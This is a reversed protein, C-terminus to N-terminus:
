DAAAAAVLEGDNKRGILGDFHDGLRLRSQELFLGALLVGEAEEVEDYAVFGVAGGADGDGVAVLRGEDLHVVVIEQAGALAQVHGGRRAQEAVIGLGFGGLGLGHQAAHVIFRKITLLDVADTEAFGDALPQERVVLHEDEGDVFVVHGRGELPHHGVAGVPDVGVVGGLEDAADIGQGFLHEAIRAHEFVAIGFGHAAGHGKALVDFNRFLGGADEVFGFIDIEVAQRGGDAFLEDGDGGPVDVATHVGGGAVLQQAPELRGGFALAFAADEAVHAAEAFPHVHGGEIGHQEERGAIRLHVHHLGDPPDHAARGAFFVAVDDDGDHHRHIHFGFFHEVVVLAELHHPGHEVGQACVVVAEVGGDVFDFEVLAAGVLDERYPGVAVRAVLDLVAAIAVCALRLARGVGLGSQGAHAALEADLKLLQLAHEEGAHHLFHAVAAVPLLPGFVHGLDGLAVDLADAAKDAILPRVAAGEGLKQGAQLFVDVGGDGLALGHLHEALVEDGPRHEFGQELAVREHPVVGDRHGHLGHEVQQFFLGQFLFGFGQLLEVLRHAGAGGADVVGLAFLADDHLQVVLKEFRGERAHDFLEADDIRRHFHHVEDHVGGVGQQAPLKAAAERIFVDVDEVGEGARAGKHGAQQLAAQDAGFVQLALVGAFEVGVFDHQQGVVDGGDIDFVGVM